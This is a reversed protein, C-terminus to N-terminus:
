PSFFFFFFSRTRRRRCNLASFFVMDISSSLKPRSFFFFWTRRRCCNLAFLFFFPGIWRPGSVEVCACVLSNIYYIQRGKCAVGLLINYVWNFPYHKGSPVGWLIDLVYFCLLLKTWFELHMPNMFGASEMVRWWAGQSRGHVVCLFLCKEWLLSIKGAAFSVSLLHGKQYEM